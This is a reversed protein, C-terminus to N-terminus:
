QTFSKIAKNSEDSKMNYKSELTKKVEAIYHDKNDKIKPLNMSFNLINMMQIMDAYDQPKRRIFKRM